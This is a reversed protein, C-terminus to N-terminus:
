IFGGLFYKGFQGVRFFEPILFKVGLFPRWYDGDSSIKSYGGGEVRAGGGEPSIAKKIKTEHNGKM